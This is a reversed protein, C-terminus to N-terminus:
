PQVVARWSDSDNRYLKGNATDLIVVGQPYQSNPLTPLGFVNPIPLRINRVAERIQPVFPLLEEFIAIFPDLVDTKKRINAAARSIELIEAIMEEPRRKSVAKADPPPLAYLKEELTPWTLDFLSNLRSEPLPPENLARNVMQVLRRTPEKEAKTGQFMGLPPEVDEYRLDGLLYTCLRTKDDITKSLAGAEFLLWASDLNEPTLFTIGIKVGALVESLDILSRSGPELDTDSMWPQASQIVMPLWERLARAAWLSRGKSWSIFVNFPKPMSIHELDGSYQRQCEPHFPYLERHCRRRDSCRVRM